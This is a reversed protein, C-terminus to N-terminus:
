NSVNPVLRIGALAIMKEPLKQLEELSLFGDRNTDLQQFVDSIETASVKNAINYKNAYALVEAQELKGDKPDTDIAVMLSQAMGLRQSEQSNPTSWLGHIIEPPLKEDAQEVEHRTLLGDNNKDLRKFLKEEESGPKRAMAFALPVFEAVTLQGDRNLDHTNFLSGTKLRAESPDNSSHFIRHWKEFEAFSILGDNNADIVDFDSVNEQKLPSSQAQTSLWCSCLVGVVLLVVPDFM